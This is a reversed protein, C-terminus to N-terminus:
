LQSFTGIGIVLKNQYVDTQLLSLAFILGLTAGIWVLVSRISLLRQIKILLQKPIMPSSKTLVLTNFGKKEQKRNVLYKVLNM